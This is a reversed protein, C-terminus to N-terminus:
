TKKCKACKCGGPCPASTTQGEKCPAKDCRKGCCGASMSFACVLAVAAVVRGVKSMVKRM